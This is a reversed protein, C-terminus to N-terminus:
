HTIFVSSMFERVSFWEYIVLFEEIIKLTFRM